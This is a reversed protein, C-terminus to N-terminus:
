PTDEFAMLVLGAILFLIFLGLFGYTVMMWVKANRSAASAEFFQGQTKLGDVKSGYVIAVIGTILGPSLCCVLVLISSIVTGVISAALYSPIPPGTYVGDYAPPQPLHQAGSSQRVPITLTPPPPVQPADDDAVPEKPQNPQLEPIQSVPLWDPMGECWILSSESIDARRIKELLVAKPVPGQQLGMKTYFWEDM